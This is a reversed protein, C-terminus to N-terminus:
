TGDPAAPAEGNCSAPGGGEGGECSARGCPPAAGAPADRGPPGGAAAPAPARAAGADGGGGPAAEQPAGALERRLGAILLLLQDRDMDAVDRAGPPVSGNARLAAARRQQEEPEGPRPAEPSPPPPGPPAPSPGPPGQRETAGAETFQKTRLQAEIRAILERQGFPKTVYDNAGARLGEVVQEERSNASVLIVPLMLQPHRERILRVVDHGSLGPMMVDLLMADPPAGGAVSEELMDLARYGAKTLMTQIVMQNVPDDDVSLVKIRGRELAAVRVREDAVLWNQSPPPPPRAAPPPAKVVEEVMMDQASNTRELGGGGAGELENLADGDGSGAPRLPAAGEEREGGGAPKGGGSGPPASAAAPPRGGGGDGLSARPSPKPPSVDRAAPADGRDFTFSAQPDPAAPKGEAGPPRRQQASQRQQQQSHRQRQQQQQEGPGQVPAADAAQLSRRRPSADGAWVKLTFTNYKKFTFKVLFKVKLTFTFVSGSGRRSAVSIAGGHAEVLQKALNLGLGTGGYRRTTSMDVRETFKCSNGVLNYLVVAPLSAPIRNRIVVGPKALPDDAVNRLNVRCQQVQLKGQTRTPDTRHRARARPCSAADGRRNAEEVVRMALLRRHEITMFNGHLLTSSFFIVVVVVVVVVVWWWVGTSIYTALFCLQMKSSRREFALSLLNLVAATVFAVLPWLYIPHPVEAYFAEQVGADIMSPRCLYAIWCTYSLSGVGVIALANSLHFKKATKAAAALQRAEPSPEGVPSEPVGAQLGSVAVASSCSDRAAWDLDDAM